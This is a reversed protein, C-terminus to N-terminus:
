GADPRDLEVGGLCQLATPNSVTLRKVKVFLRRPDMVNLIARTWFPPLKGDMKPETRFSNIM